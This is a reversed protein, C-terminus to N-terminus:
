DTIGKERLKNRCESCYSDGDDLNMKGEADKMLCVPDPCHPLGFTHGLEHLALTTMRKLFVKEGTKNRGARFSSIVCAVGPCSGLGLVGWNEIEGKRTSIDKTTLGIIQDFAGSKQNRLFVLLSDAIYRQRPAYFANAPLPKAPLEVVNLKLQDRIGSRVAQLVAKGMGEFPLLAVTPKKITAAQVPKGTDPGSHPGRERQRCAIFTLFFIMM